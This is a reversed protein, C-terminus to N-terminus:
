NPNKRVSVSTGGVSANPLVSARARVGPSVRGFKQDHMAGMFEEVPCLFDLVLALVLVLVLNM